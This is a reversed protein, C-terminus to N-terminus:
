NERGSTALDRESQQFFGLSDSCLSSVREQGQCGPARGAEGEPQQVLPPRLGGGGGVKVLELADAQLEGDEQERCCRRARRHALGMTFAEVDRM